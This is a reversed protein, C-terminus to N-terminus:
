SETEETEKVVPEARMKHDPNAYPSTPFFDIHEEESRKVLHAPANLKKGNIAIHGHTILQRAHHITRALGKKFVISQLRRNLVDEITLELVNELQIDRETMGLRFLHGFLETEGKERLPGEVTRLDRANTRFRSLIYKAKWFERKNRLGYRGVYVLEEELRASEWPRNPKKFKKKLRRPDGM